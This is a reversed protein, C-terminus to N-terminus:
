SIVECILMVNLLMGEVTNSPFVPGNDNQDIVTVIVTATVTGSTDTASVTLEHRSYEERDLSTTTSLQGSLSDVSFYSAVGAEIGAAFIGM